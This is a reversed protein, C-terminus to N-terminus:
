RIEGGCEVGGAELYIGWNRINIESEISGGSSKHEM